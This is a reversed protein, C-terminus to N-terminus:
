FLAGDKKLEDQLEKLVQDPNYGATKVAAAWADYVPKAADRWLKLQDPSIKTLKRDSKRIEQERKIADEYWYKYVLRSWEPTCVSDVAKKQAASLSNYTTRSIGHTFNSVYMPVDLTYTTVEGFKFAPHTLGDWPVTIAETIGSKLTAFAEMIPVQVSNGGMSTVFNAITQNATRVKMGKVDAPVRIEKKSHFTAIEHSYVHCVYHDPMEKEAYKKYWRHTAAAAKQSDTILFPLDAAAFVPFRGPTYGPNILGFDAIGRKVMDYHDAGSGLQSSPFLTVKITGNSAKELAAAWDKYGPTLLHSPPVWYSLKLNVVKDQAHAGTAGIALALVGVLLLEQRKM